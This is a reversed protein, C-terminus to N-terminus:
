RTAAGGAPEPPTTDVSVGLLRWGNQEFFHRTRFATRVPKTAYEGEVTLVGDADITPEGALKPELSKIGSIDIREDIFAQFIGRLKEPTVQQRLPTSAGAHMAAFDRSRVADNFELLTRKVLARVEEAPPLAPRPGGADASKLNVNIGLLRWAGDERFYKLSFHPNVPPTAYHGEVLLVKGEELLAPRNLVVEAGRIRSLDVKNDIFPGFAQRMKEAPVQERFPQSVIAHFKGFDRAQVADNFALLTNTAM